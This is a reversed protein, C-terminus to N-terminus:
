QPSKTQQHEPRLAALALLPPPMSVGALRLKRAANRCAGIDNASALEEVEEMTMVAEKPTSSSDKPTPASLSSKLQADEASTKSEAGSNQEPAAHAPGSQGSAEQASNGDKPQADPRADRKPSALDEQPPAKMFAVLEQCLNAPQAAAPQGLFAWALVAVLVARRVADGERTLAEAM